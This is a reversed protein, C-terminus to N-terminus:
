KRQASALAAIFSRGDKPPPLKGSMRPRVMEGSTSGIIESSTPATPEPCLEATERSSLSDLLADERVMESLQDLTFTAGRKNRLARRIKQAITHAPM